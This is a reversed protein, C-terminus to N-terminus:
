EANDIGKEARIVLNWMLEMFASFMASNLSATEVRGDRVLSLIIREREPTEEIRVHVGDESVFSYGTTIIEQM